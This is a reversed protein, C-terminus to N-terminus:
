LWNPSSPLGEFGDGPNLRPKIQQLAAYGPKLGKNLYSGSM